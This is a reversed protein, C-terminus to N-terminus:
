YKEYTENLNLNNGKLCIRIEKASFKNNQNRAAGDM